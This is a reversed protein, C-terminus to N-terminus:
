KVLDYLVKFYIKDKGKTFKDIAGDSVWETTRHYNRLNKEQIDGIFYVDSVEIVIFPTKNKKGNGSNLITKIIKGLRMKLIYDKNYNSNVLLIDMNFPDIDLLRDGEKALEAIESDSAEKNFIDVMLNKYNDFEESRSIRYYPTFIKGYYLHKMEEDSMLEPTAKFRTLLREYYFESKEDEINTKIAKLDINQAMFVNFMGLLLGLIVKKM